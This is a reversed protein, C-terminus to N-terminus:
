DVRKRLRPVSEDKLQRVRTRKSWCIFERVLEETGKPITVHDYREKLYFVFQPNDGSGAWDSVRLVEHKHSSRPHVIFGHGELWLKFSLLKRRHLLNRNQRKSFQKAM